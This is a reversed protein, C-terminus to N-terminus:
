LQGSTRQRRNRLQQQGQVVAAVAAAVAAIPLLWSASVAAWVPATARAAARVAARISTVTNRQMKAPLSPADRAEHKAKRTDPHTHSAAPLAAAGRGASNATKDHRRCMRSICSPYVLECNTALLVFPLQSQRSGHSSNKEISVLLRHM